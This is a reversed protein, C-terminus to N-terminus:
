YLIFGSFRGCFIPYLKRSLVKFHIAYNFNIIYRNGEKSSGLVISISHKVFLQMGLKIKSEVSSRTVSQPEMESDQGNSLSQRLQESKEAHVLKSAAVIVSISRCSDCDTKSISRLNIPSFCSRIIRIGFQIYM